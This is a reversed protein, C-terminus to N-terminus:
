IEIEPHAPAVALAEGMRSALGGATVDQFFL